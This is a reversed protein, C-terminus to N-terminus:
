CNPVDKDMLKMYVMIELLAIVGCDRSYRILQYLYVKYVFASTSKLSENDM